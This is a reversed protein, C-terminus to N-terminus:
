PSTSFQQELLTLRRQCDQHEADLVKMQKELKCVREQHRINEASVGELALKLATVDALRADARHHAAESRVKLVGWLAGGGLLVAVIEVVIVWEPIGELALM